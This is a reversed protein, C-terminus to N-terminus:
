DVQKFALGGLFEGTAFALAHGDGAGQEIGRGFHQKISSGSAASSM